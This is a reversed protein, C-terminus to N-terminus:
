RDSIWRRKEEEGSGKTGRLRVGPGCDEDIFQVGAVELKVAPVDTTRNPPVDVGKVTVKQFGPSEIILDYMGPNVSPLTYTGASTTKTTYAASAAGPLQLSISAEPVAAGTKDLVVGTVTTAIQAMAPTAGLGISLVWIFVKSM